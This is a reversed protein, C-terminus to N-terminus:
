RYKIIISKSSAEIILDCWLQLNDQSNENGAADFLYEAGDTTELHLVNRQLTADELQNLNCKFLNLPQSIANLDNYDKENAFFCMLNGHITTYYSAYERIPARQGGKQYEQKRM